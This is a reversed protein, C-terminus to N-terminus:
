FPPPIARRMKIALIRDGDMAANVTYTGDGSVFLKWNEYRHGDPATLEASSFLDADGLNSRGVAFIAEIPLGALARRGNSIIEIPLDCFKGGGACYRAMDRGQQDDISVPFRVTAAQRVAGAILRVIAFARPRDAPAVTFFSSRPAECGGTKHPLRYLTPAAEVVQTEGGREPGVRWSRKVCFGSAADLLAPGVLRVDLPSPHPGPPPPPVGEPLLVREVIPPHGSALLADALAAPTMAAAETPTLRPRDPRLAVQPDAALLALLALM